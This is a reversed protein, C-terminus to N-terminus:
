KMSTETIGLCLTHVTFMVMFTLVATVWITAALQKLPIANIIVQNPQKSNFPKRFRLFWLSGWSFGAGGELEIYAFDDKHSSDGSKHTTSRTWDLYNLSVNGFGM